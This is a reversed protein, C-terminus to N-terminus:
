SQQRGSKKARPVDRKTKPRAAEDGAKRAATDRAANKRRTNKRKGDDRKREKNGPMRTVGTGVRAATSPDDSNVSGRPGSCRVIANSDVTSSGVAVDRMQIVM